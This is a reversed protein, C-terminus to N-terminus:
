GIALYLTMADRTTRSFGHAQYFAAAKEDKADVIVVRVGLAQRLALARHMVHGLLLQGYGNGQESRAVALRALRVAPFPYSPLRRRDPEQLDSLSLQAAALACHGLIRQPNADNVLVHTTAIGDRQHQSARRRLYDDLAPVGCSFGTWDHVRGDLRLVQLAM